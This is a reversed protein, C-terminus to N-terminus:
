RLIESLLDKSDNGDQRLRFSDFGMKDDGRFKDEFHKIPSRPDLVIIQKIGGLNKM